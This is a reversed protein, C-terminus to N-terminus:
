LYPEIADYFYGAMIKYGRSNPHIQDSMLSKRSWIGKLVNPVLVCGTKEALSKYANGFDKGLISIDIGGIVVMAGMGQIRLIVSELNKFAEDKSVGMRLDNGGLTILM